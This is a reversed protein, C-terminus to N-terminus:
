EGTGDLHATLRITTHLVPHNVVCIVEQTELGEPQPRYTFNSIVTITGNSNEIFYRQPMIILDDKMEWSIEPAPQGTASCSVVHQKGSTDLSHVQHILVPESINSEYVDLCIRGSNAGFPYINFICKFCGQDEITVPNITIATENYTDITNQATRSASYGLLREGYLKSCTAVTETSNGKEKQWTVQFINRQATQLRCLLTVNGGVTAAQKETRLVM